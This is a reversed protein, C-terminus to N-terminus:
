GLANIVENANNGPEILDNGPKITKFARVVNEHVARKLKVSRQVLAFNVVVGDTEGSVSYEVRCVGREVKAKLLVAILFQDENNTRVRGCDTLGFSRVSLPQHGGPLKVTPVTRLRITPLSSTFRAIPLPAIQVILASNGCCCV